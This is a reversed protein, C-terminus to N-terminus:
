CEKIWGMRLFVFRLVNSIPFVLSWDDLEAESM